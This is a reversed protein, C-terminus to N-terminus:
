NVKIEFIELETLKGDGETLESNKSFNYIKAGNILDSDYIINRAYYFGNGNGNNGILIYYTSDLGIANGPVLIKYIKNNNLSFVFANEDKYYKRSGNLNINDLKCKIFAGFIRKNNTHYLFILNSKNNIKNVISLYNFGDKSARYILKLNNININGYTSILEYFKNYNDDNKLILTDLDFLGGYNKIKEIFINDEGFTFNIKIENNNCKKIKENILNIDKINSEINICDNILSILKNENWEKEIIKGKELSIKVKNPLKEYKKIINENLYINEFYNDLKLLLEDERDNLATRIKTFVNQIKKRLDEKNQNIKEFLIKLEEISKDLTNSLEELSKINEKLTKKKEEKIDEIFCIECNGHQGYGHGKIKTGCACCCLQNHNKCYYELKNSHNEEKCIDTFIDNVDINFNYQNHGEFLGSHYNICKNCMYIKCKQCYSIADIEKHDKFSCKKKIAEM